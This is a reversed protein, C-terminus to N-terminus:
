LGPVFAFVVAFVLAPLLNAVRITRPKFLNVGVLFILISGVLSINDLAQTTMVPQILRALFTMSGQLIGVPIASFVCGKGMSSAMVMVIIFDLVAKAALTSYDGYIGDQISGVIAMAGICVTLSASVFGNIFQKDNSNGTRVKLWAGFAEFKSDLDIIEGLVAGLVLSLIMMMTGKTGFKAPDTSTITLMKSVAGSIGIFVVAAANAKLVTEQFRATLFRGSGLGLLGGATIGLVNLITGTGAM